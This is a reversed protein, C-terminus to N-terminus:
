SLGEAIFQYFREILARPVGPLADLHGTDRQYGIANTDYAVLRNRAGAGFARNPRWPGLTLLGYAGASVRPPRHALWAEYADDDGDRAPQQTRAPPIFTDGVRLGLGAHFVPPQPPRFLCNLVGAAQRNTLGGNPKKRALDRLWPDEAHAQTRIWADALDYLETGAIGGNALDDATIDQTFTGAYATILDDDTTAATM